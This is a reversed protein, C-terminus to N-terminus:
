LPRGDKIRYYTDLLKEAAPLSIGTWNVIDRAYVKDDLLADLMGLLVRKEDECRVYKARWNVVNTM